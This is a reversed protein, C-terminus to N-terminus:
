TRLWNEKFPLFARTVPPLRPITLRSAHIDLILLININHLTEFNNSSKCFRSGIDSECVRGCRLLLNRFYCGCDCFRGSNFDFCVATINSIGLSDALSDLFKRGCKAFQINNNSIRSYSNAPIQAYYVLLFLPMAVCM